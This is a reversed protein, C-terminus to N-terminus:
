YVDKKLNENILDLLEMDRKEIPLSELIERAKFFISIESGDKVEKKIRLGEEYLFRVEKKKIASDLDGLESVGFYSSGHEKILSNLMRRAEKLDGERLFRKSEKAM